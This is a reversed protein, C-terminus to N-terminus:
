GHRPAKLPAQLLAKAVDPLEGLRRQAKVLDAVQRQAKVLDSVQSQAKLLDSLQRETKRLDDLRRWTEDIQNFYEWVKWGNVSRHGAGRAALSPNDYARGNLMIAGGRVEAEFPKGKYTLRLRTGNPIVGGRSMLGPEAPPAERVARPTVDEHDVGLDKLAAAQDATASVLHYPTGDLGQPTLDRLPVGLQGLRSLDEQHLSLIRM